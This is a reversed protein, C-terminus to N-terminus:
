WGAPCGGRWDGHVHNPWDSQDQKREACAGVAKVARRLKEWTNIDSHVDAATGYIHQSNTAAGPVSANRKPTSYGRNITLEQGYQTRWAELGAFVSFVAWPAGDKSQINEFTFHGGPSQGSDIYKSREPVSSKSMDIYQQRIKDIDDQTITFQDQTGGYKATVVYALPGDRASPADPPSAKVPYEKNTLSKPTLSGNSPTNNSTWDPVANAADNPEGCGIVAAHFTLKDTSVFSKDSGSTKSDNSPTDVRSIKVSPEKPCPTVYVTFGGNWNTTGWVDTSSGAFNVSATQPSKVCQAPQQAEDGCSASELVLPFSAAATSSSDGDWWCRSPGGEGPSKSADGGGHVNGGNFITRFPMGPYEVVTPLSSLSASLSAPEDDPGSWNCACKGTMTVTVDNRTHFLVGYATGDRISAESLANSRKVPTGDATLTKDIIERSDEMTMCPNAADRHFHVSGNVRIVVTGQGYANATLMLLL